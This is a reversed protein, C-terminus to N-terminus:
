SYKKWFTSELVVTSIVIKKDVRVLFTAINGAIIACCPNEIEIIPIATM